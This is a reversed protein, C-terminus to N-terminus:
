CTRWRRRLRKVAPGSYIQNKMKKKAFNLLVNEHEFDFTVDILLIQFCNAAM